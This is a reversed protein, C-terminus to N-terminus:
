AQLYSALEKEVHGIGLPSIHARKGVADYEILRARHMPLLVNRRYVSANSHETWALLDAETVWASPGYLLLLTKDKMRLNMALVRRASGIVWVGPIIREVLGDVIEAAEATTVNHFIRVLEAVVWKGGGLVLTADMHNPGVDGGTHGVGRNNRIEYLAMLLRPVTIRVSQPFRKKDVAEFDLCASKFDRPKTAESAWRGDVHGRLITYAVECLKGGNLESPEWKHAVYNATIEALADLLEKRLGAPVQGLPDGMDTV